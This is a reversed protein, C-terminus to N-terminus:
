LVGPLVVTCFAGSSVSTDRLCARGHDRDETRVLQGHARHFALGVMIGTKPGYWNATLVIFLMSCLTVSGGWPMEYIKLYSTIFALAMAVACFVLQKTGMKKKESVKGAFALAAVFLIVGVVVCMAYGAATLRGESNVLFDFM